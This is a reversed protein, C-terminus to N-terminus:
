LQLLIQKAFLEWRFYELFIKSQDVTQQSRIQIDMSITNILRRLRLECKSKFQNIASNAMMLGPNEIERLTICISEESLDIEKSAEIEDVLFWFFRKGDIVSSAAIKLHDGKELPRNLALGSADHATITHAFSLLSMYNWQQVNQLRTLCDQYFSSAECSKNIRKVQNFRSPLIAAFPKTELLASM